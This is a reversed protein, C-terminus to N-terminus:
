FQKRDSLHEVRQTKSFSLLRKEEFVKWSQLLKMWIEATIAARSSGATLYSGSATTQNNRTQGQHNKNNKRKLLIGKVTVWASVWVSNHYQNLGDSFAFSFCCLQYQTLSCRRKFLVEESKRMAPLHFTCFSSTFKRARPLVKQGEEIVDEGFVLDM